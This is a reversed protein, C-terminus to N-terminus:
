SLLARRARADYSALDPDFSALLVHDIGTALAADSSSRRFGSVPVGRDHAARAVACGARLGAPQSGLTAIPSSREGGSEETHERSRCPDIALGPRSEVGARQDRRRGLRVVLVRSDIEFALKLPVDTPLELRRSCARDRRQRRSPRRRRRRGRHAPERGDLQRVLRPRGAGIALRLAMERARAPARSSLLGAVNACAVLLVVLALTILM